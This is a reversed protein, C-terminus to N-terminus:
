CDASSVRLEEEGTEVRIRCGARSTPVSGHPIIELALSELNTSIIASQLHMHSHTDTIVAPPPTHILQPRVVTHKDTSVIASQTSVTHLPLHVVALLNVLTGTLVSVCGNLCM